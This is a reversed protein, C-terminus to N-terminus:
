VLNDGDKKYLSSIFKKGKSKQRIGLVNNIDLYKGCGLSDFVKLM